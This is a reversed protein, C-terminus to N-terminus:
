LRSSRPFLPNWTNSFHHIIPLTNDPCNTYMVIIAGTNRYGFPGYYKKKNNGKVIDDLRQVLDRAQIFIDGEGKQETKFVFAENPLSLVPSFTINHFRNELKKGTEEGEPCVLLPIVLLKMDDISSAAFIVAREIQSGSGVFDELLVIRKLGKSRMYDKIKEDSGFKELSRWDPRLDIGELNNTHYFYAIQMSDTIPCFWTERLANRLKEEAKHDSFKINLEDVLWKIVEGHLAARYLSSFEDRSIFFIHPVLRFLIKQDEEESLNELWDRLRVIFDPHPGITPMYENFHKQSHYDIQEYIANFDPAEIEMTWKQVKAAITHPM